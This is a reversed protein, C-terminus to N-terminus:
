RQAPGQPRTAGGARLTLADRLPSRRGRVAESLAYALQRARAASSEQQAGAARLWNQIRARHTSGVMVDEELFYNTLRAAALRERLERERHARSPIKRVDPDIMASRVRAFEGSELLDEVIDFEAGECNLKLFVEDEAGLFVKV